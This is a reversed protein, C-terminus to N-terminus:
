KRSRKKRSRRKRSRKKRTRKTKRSNRRRRVRNGGGILSAQIRRALDAKTQQLRGMEEDHIQQFEQIKEAHRQRLKDMERAHKKRLEAMQKAHKQSLKDEDLEDLQALLADSRDVIINHLESPYMNYEQFTADDKLYVGRYKLILEDVPIDTIDNIMGKVEGVTNNLKLTLYVPLGDVNLNVPEGDSAEREEVPVFARPMEPEPELAPAPATAPNKDGVVVLPNGPENLTSIHVMDLLVNGSSTDDDYYYLKMDPEYGRSQLFTKLVEITDDDEYYIPFIDGTKRDQVEIKQM